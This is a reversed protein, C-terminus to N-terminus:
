RGPVGTVLVTPVHRCLLIQTYGAQSVDLSRIFEDMTRIDLHLTGRAHRGEFPVVLTTFYYLYNAHCLKGFEARKAKARGEAM